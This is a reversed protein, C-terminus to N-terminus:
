QFVICVGKFKQATMTEGEHEEHHVMQKTQFFLSVVFLVFSVFFLIYHIVNDPKNIMEPPSIRNV